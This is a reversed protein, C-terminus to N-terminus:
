IALRDFNSLGFLGVKILPGQKTRKSTNKRGNIVQAKATEHCVHIEM